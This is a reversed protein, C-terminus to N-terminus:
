PEQRAAISYLSRPELKFDSAHMKDVKNMSLRVRRFEMSELASFLGENFGKYRRRFEVRIRRMM